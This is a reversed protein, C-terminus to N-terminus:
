KTWLGEVPEWSGSDSNWDGVRDSEAGNTRDWTLSNM